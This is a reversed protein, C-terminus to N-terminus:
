GRPSAARPSGPDVPSDERYDSALPSKLAPSHMHLDRLLEWLDERSPEEVLAHKLIGLGARVHADPSLGPFPTRVLDLLEYRFPDGPRGSLESLSRPVTWQAPGQYVVVPIILPAAGGPDGRREHDRPVGPLYEAIQVPTGAEPTSKHELIVYLPRGDGIRMSYVGDASTGWLTDDIFAREDAAFPTDPLTRL